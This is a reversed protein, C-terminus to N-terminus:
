DMVNLRSMLQKRIFQLPLGLGGYEPLPNLLDVKEAWPTSIKDGAIKWGYKQATVMGELLIMAAIVLLYYKM